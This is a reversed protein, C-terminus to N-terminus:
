IVDAGIHEAKLAKRRCGNKESIMARVLFVAQFPAQFPSVRNVPVQPAQANYYIVATVDFLFLPALVILSM